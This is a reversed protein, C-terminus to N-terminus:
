FRENKEWLFKQHQFFFFEWLECCCWLLLCSLKIEQHSEDDDATICLSYITTYTQDHAESYSQLCFLLLFNSSRPQIKHKDLGTSGFTPPVGELPPASDNCAPARYSHIFYYIIFITVGTFFYFFSFLTFDTAVIITNFNKKYVLSM